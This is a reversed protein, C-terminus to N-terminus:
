QTRQNKTTSNFSKNKHKAFLGKDTMDNAFIKEWKTPQRKKLPKGQKAPCFRSCKITNWKNIKTKIEIAKPSQGLSVNTPNIDSFPKDISEELLKITDDRINLDKLWKSNRRRCQTLIYDSKM